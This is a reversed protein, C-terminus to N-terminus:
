QKVKKVKEAEEITFLGKTKGTPDYEYLANRTWVIIHPRRNVDLFQYVGVFRNWKFIRQLLKKM